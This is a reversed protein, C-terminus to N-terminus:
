RIPMEVFPARLTGMKGPTSVVLGRDRLKRLVTWTWVKGRGVAGMVDPLTVPGRAQLRVVALLVRTEVDTTEGVVDM